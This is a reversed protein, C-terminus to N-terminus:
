RGATCLIFTLAPRATYSLAPVRLGLAEILLHSRVGLLEPCPPFAIAVLIHRAPTAAARVSSM